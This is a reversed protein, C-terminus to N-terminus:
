IIHSNESRWFCNTRDALVRWCSALLFPCKHPRASIGVEMVSAKQAPPQKPRGGALAKQALLEKHQRGACLKKGVKSYLEEYNNIIQIYNTMKM